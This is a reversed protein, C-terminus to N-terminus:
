LLLLTLCAGCTWGLTQWLRADKAARSQSQAAMQAISSATQAAALRRSEASGRSIRAAMRLLADREPCPPCLREFAEPFSLLPDGELASAADRLLKDPTGSGDSACRLAAPLPLVAEQLVLALQELLEAWRSLRQAEMRMHATHRLGILGCLLGAMLALFPRTM